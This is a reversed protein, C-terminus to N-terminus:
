RQSNGQYKEAQMLFRDLLEPQSALNIHFYSALLNDNFSYGFRKNGSKYNLPIKASKNAIKSYHFFHGKATQGEKLLPNDKLAQAKRYGMAQLQDTMKIKIDLLGTMEYVNGRTDIFERSLYILGGCEAYVPLGALIKLKLDKKFSKNWALQDIFREPFGGGIIFGDLDPLKNDKLPSLYVLEVGLEEMLDLDSQYYFNFAQDWAIGIKLGSFKAKINKPRSIKLRERSGSLKFIKDLEFYKEALDILNQFYDRLGNNAQAPILGLHSKPLALDEQRPLYGLTQINVPESELIEKIIQYHSDSGINNIIVGEIKLEPDFNKYGYILAAISQGVRAADVVLIVPADVIKAIEATSSIMEKGKGDFLGMVGEIISIDAKQSKTIFKDKLDNDPTFYSDLNYALNGAAKKHFGPDIYDPGVKFPQVNYDRSNLAAMLALSITTKGVGSRTGAIVVRNQTM